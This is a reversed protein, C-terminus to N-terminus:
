SIVVKFHDILFIQIRRTGSSFVSYILCICVHPFFNPSFSFFLLYLLVQCGWKQFILFHRKLNSHPKSQAWDFLESIRSLLYDSTKTRSINSGCVHTLTQLFFDYPNGPFTVEGCFCLPQSLSWPQAALNMAHIRTSIRLVKYVFGSKCCFPLLSCLCTPSQPQTRNITVKDADNVEWPRLEKQCLTATPSLQHRLAVWWREVGM